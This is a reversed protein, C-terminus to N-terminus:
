ATEPDPLITSISTDGYRRTRTGEPLTLAAATAHELWLEHAFPVAAYAELLAAAAESAYPPDAVAIDFAGAELRRVYALAESRVVEYTGREVRLKEINQEIATRAARAQEVFTAHAAGRSLMELGLAGSGAFLDLVRAGAISPQLASM